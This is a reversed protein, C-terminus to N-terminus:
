HGTTASYPVKPPSGEVRKMVSDKLFAHFVFFSRATALKQVDHIDNKKWSVLYLHRGSVPAIM